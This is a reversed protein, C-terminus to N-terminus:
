DEREPGEVKWRQRSSRLAFRERHQSPTMRAHRAFVRRFASPDAYGCAAAISPVSDLTIELLVKARQVRMQHLHDLPSHGLVQRFHRLLTRTSVASALALANLDYPQDLRAQLWDIARAMVSDRTVEILAGQAADATARQRDADFRLASRCSQALDAGEAAEILCLALEVLTGLHTSSLLQGDRLWPQDPLLDVEPFRRKFGGIFMWPLTLRRGAAGGSAAVLWAGSGLTAVWAEQAIAERVLAAHAPLQAVRADLMPIHDTHLAPVFVARRSPLPTGRRRDGEAGPTVGALRAPKGDAGLLRWGLLPTDRAGHRLGRRLRGITNALRLMDILAFASGVAAHDHILLDVLFTEADPRSVVPM